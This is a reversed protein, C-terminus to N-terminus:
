CFSSVFADGGLCHLVSIFQFCLIDSGSGFKVLTEQAELSSSSFRVRINHLIYM